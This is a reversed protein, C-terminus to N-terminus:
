VLAFLRGDPAFVLNNINRLQVPLERVEFGPVLMQVLPPNPAVELPREITAAVIPGVAGLLGILVSAILKMRGDNGRCVREEVVNM